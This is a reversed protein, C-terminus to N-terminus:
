VERKVEPEKSRPDSYSEEPTPKPKNLESGMAKLFHLGFAMTTRVNPDRMTKLLGLMSPPENDTHDGGDRKNTPDIDDLHTLGNGFAKLLRDMEMPDIKGVMQTLTFMNRILPPVNLSNILKVGHVGIDTRNKLAADAIDLMGADNLEKVIEITKLIAEKNEAIAGIIQTLSEAQIEAETPVHREIRNIAKAM